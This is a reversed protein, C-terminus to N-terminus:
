EVEIWMQGAEQRLTTASRVERKVNEFDDYTLWNLGILKPVMSQWLAILYEANAKLLRKNKEDYHMHMRLYKYRKFGAKEALKKLSDPSGINPNGNSLIQLRIMGELLKKTYPAVWDEVGPVKVIWSSNVNLHVETILIRGGPAVTRKLESLVQNVHEVPMHELVWSIYAGALSDDSFDLDRANMVRHETANNFRPNRAIFEAMNRRAQDIQSQVHDISIVKSSPPLNILLDPTQASVGSGVELFPLWTALELNSLSLNRWIDAKLMDHQDKLRQREIEDSDGFGHIYVVDGGSGCHGLDSETSYALSGYVILFIIELLMHFLVRFKM